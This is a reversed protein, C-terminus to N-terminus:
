FHPCTKPWLQKLQLYRRSRQSGRWTWYWFHRTACVGGTLDLIHRAPELTLRALEMSPELKGGQCWPDLSVDELIAEGLTFFPM